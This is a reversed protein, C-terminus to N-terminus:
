VKPRVFAMERIKGSFQIKEKIKEMKGANILDHIAQRSTGIEKAVNVLLKWGKTEMSEITTQKHDNKFSEWVRDWEPVVIEANPSKTRSTKSHHTAM